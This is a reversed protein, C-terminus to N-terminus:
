LPSSPEPTQVSVHVSNSYVPSLSSSPSHIILVLGPLLKVLTTSQGVGSGVGLGVGAGVGLGVGAGVGLGVGSGVGLGVGAGVGLGVGAGSDQDNSRKVPGEEYEAFPSIIRQFM